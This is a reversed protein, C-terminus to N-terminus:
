PKLDSVACRICQRQEEKQITPVFQNGRHGDTIALGRLTQAKRRKQGMKGKERGKNAPWNVQFTLSRIISM